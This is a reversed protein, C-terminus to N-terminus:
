TLITKLTATSSALGLCDSGLTVESAFTRLHEQFYTNKYIECYECSFDDSTSDIKLSTTPDGAVKNLLSKSM